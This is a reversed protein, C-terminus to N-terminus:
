AMRRYRFRFVPVMVAPMMLALPVILAALSPGFAGPQVNILYCGAM